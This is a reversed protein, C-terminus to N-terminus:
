HQKYILNGSVSIRTGEGYFPTTFHELSYPFIYMDGPSPIFSQSSIDKLIDYRDPRSAHRFSISGPQMDFSHDPRPEQKICEPIDVYIVFSADCDSHMHIPRSEKEQQFNVWICNLDLYGNLKTGSRKNNYVEMYGNLYPQLVKKFYKFDQETFINERSLKYLDHKFYRDARNCAQKLDILHDQSLKCNCLLPGWNYYNYDIDM